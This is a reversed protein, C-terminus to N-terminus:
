MHKAHVSCWVNTLKVLEPATRVINVNLCGFPTCVGLDGHNRFQSQKSHYLVLITFAECPDDVRFWDDCENPALRSLKAQLGHQGLRTSPGRHEYLFGSIALVTPNKSQNKNMLSWYVIRAQNGLFGDQADQSIWSPRWHLQIASNRSKWYWYM